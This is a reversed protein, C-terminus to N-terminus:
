AEAAQLPFGAEIRYQSGRQTRVSSYLLARDVTFAESRFLVHGSMFAVVDDVPTDGLRALTVHPVFKRRDVEVEVNRLCGEVRQRLLTVPGPDAVGAWVSTPAGRPPFVGIGKLTMEFRPSRLKGLADIVERHVRGDVEGLYLLTLHLKDRGEWRAGPLGCSMLELHDDVNAPLDLGIFLRPM